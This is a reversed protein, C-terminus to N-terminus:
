IILLLMWSAHWCIGHACLCAHWMVFVYLVVSIVASPVHLFSSYSFVCVRPALLALMCTQPEHYSTPKGPTSLHESFFHSVTASLNTPSRNERLPASNSCPFFPCKWFTCVDLFYDWWFSSSSCLVHASSDGWNSNRSCLQPRESKLYFLPKFLSCECSLMEAPPASFLFRIESFM